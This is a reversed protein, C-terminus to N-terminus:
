ELEVIDEKNNQTEIYKIVMDISPNSIKENNWVKNRVINWSNTEVIKEILIQNPAYGKHETEGLENDKLIRSVRSETYGEEIIELNNIKNIKTFWLKNDAININDKNVQLFTEIHVIEHLIIHIVDTESYQLIKPNIDLIMKGLNISAGVKPDAENFTINLNNKIIELASLVKLADSALNYNDNKKYDSKLLDYTYELLIKGEM